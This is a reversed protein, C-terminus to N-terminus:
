VGRRGRRDGSRETEIDRGNGSGCYPAGYALPRPGRRGTAGEDDEAAARAAFRRLSTNRM